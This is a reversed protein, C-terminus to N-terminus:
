REASALIEQFATLVTEIDARDIGAHTVMRFRGAGRPLIRVGKRRLRELLEEESIFTEDLGVYLINTTVKGADISLGPIGALGDALRRANRHDEELRDTMRTMAVIGAAAIIGAQRMGGGLMKRIKRARAIFERSGCVVSGVPASLGKSLCVNVSDACRTLRKVDVKLAASAHFIRAGDLHLLLGRSRALAEIEDLYPTKLAAGSCVNHTNELCLLKTRPYHINEARVAAEIDSIRMTGDPQNPVVHPVVGGLASIGGVENLFIHSQDGLIAEDGRDCHTLVSVLNGMTGSTVLLAAEKGLKEAALEELRQVTPDEGYVDDGLEAHLIADRMEDTPLTVTDSRLDIIKM